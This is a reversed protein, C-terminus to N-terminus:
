QLLWQHQLLGHPFSVQRNEPLLCPASRSFYPGEPTLGEEGNLAGSVSAAAGSATRGAGQDEGQQVEFLKHITAEM